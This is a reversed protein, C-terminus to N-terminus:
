YIFINLNKEKVAWAAQTLADAIHDYSGWIKIKGEDNYEFQVSRLSLFVENDDRLQIKGQEMLRLLNEYRDHKKLKKHKKEDRDLPRMLADTAKTVRRTASEEMLIDYVGVGMGGSDVLIHKFHFRDHLAAVRRATDTITNNMEIINAVNIIGKRDTIDLISYVTEDDGMRAVDVGCAYKHGRLYTAGTGSLKMCRKIVDSPFFQRLEDIFEGLYEQAYQLKSMREKEQRLFNHNKRPCDESSIKFNTFTEDSFTRYFYGQRGHPTSLLWQDGKTVALMPTVATWVEEPIFAAEDAILLDITYGRIGYGTLGTPLCRIISGNKLKIQSKTPRDKGKKVLGKYKALIYSLIKEFLLYAQREVAAIVLIEMNPTNCAEEGAKVSIVTSKGVQRGCCASINGKTDMLKKQWPDLTEWPKNLNYRM